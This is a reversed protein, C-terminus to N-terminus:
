RTKAADLLAKSIRSAPLIAAIDRREPLHGVVMGVLLSDALDLIPAGSTGPRVPIPIAVSAPSNIFVIERYLRSVQAETVELTGGDASMMYLAHFPAEPLPKWTRIAQLPGRPILLAMLDLDTWRALVTAYITEGTSLTLRYRADTQFCHAATYIASRGTETWGIWGTCVELAEASEIDIRVSVDKLFQRAQDPTGARFAAAPSSWVILLGIITLARALRSM